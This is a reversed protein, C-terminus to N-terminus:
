RSVKAVARARELDEPTTVKFNTEEGEIALVSYGGRELMGADDTFERGEAAARQHLQALPARRFGQPTQARTLEARDVTGVIIGERVRKITDRVPVVPVIGDAERQVLAEAVADFLEPTALCRAADHVLVFEADTAALSRRVSEQRTAGGEVVRMPKTGGPVRSEWGGPVAVVLDDVRGAASAADIALALMPGDGIPVFAKPETAGMREGMGAALVIATLRAM